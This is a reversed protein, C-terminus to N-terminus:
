SVVLNVQHQLLQFKTQLSFIYSLISARSELPIVTTVERQLQFHLLLIQHNRSRQDLGFTPLPFSWASFWIFKAGLAMFLDCYHYGSLTLINVFWANMLYVNTLPLHGTQGFDPTSMLVGLRRTSVFSSKKQVVADAVAACKALANSQFMACLSQAPCFWQFCVFIVILPLVLARILSLTFSILVM